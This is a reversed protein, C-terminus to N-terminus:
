TAEFAEDCAKTLFISVIFILLINVAILIAGYNIKDLLIGFILTGLPMAGQSFMGLLSFFRSRMEAPVLKQLNTSISTNVFANFCEMVMFLLLISFFLSWTAGGYITVTIPLLLTCALIRVINEIVFGYRMLKKTGLKRFITMIAVNGLLIGVALSATIYGYQLSTFGIEKKLVYPIVLDFLPALMFNSIMAFFFLQLLGKKTGILKLVESNRSIFTTANMKEPVVEKKQYSILISFVASLLFSISNIFFIIKIGWLGYLMGGLIPGLITSVADLAGKASNAKLWQNKSILDPFLAASSAQFLSDMISMLIQLLFLFSLHFFGTGMLVGLLAVIIARVCDTMIMINRRNYRDGITGSFPASLLLPVMTFVVYLGMSTGSGTLDLIYLPLAITQIASGSLSLFRGSLFMWLNKNNSFM